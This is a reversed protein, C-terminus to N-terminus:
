GTRVRAKIYALYESYTNAVFNTRTTNSANYRNAINTEKKMQIVGSASKDPSKNPNGAGYKSGFDNKQLPQNESM